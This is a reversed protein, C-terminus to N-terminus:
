YHHNFFFTTSFMRFLKNRHNNNTDLCWTDPLLRLLDLSLLSKEIQEEQNQIPTPTLCLIHIIGRMNFLFQSTIFLCNALFVFNSKTVDPKM